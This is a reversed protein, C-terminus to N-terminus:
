FKLELQEPKNYIFKSLYKKAVNNILEHSALTYFLTNIVDPKINRDVKLPKILKRLDERSIKNM